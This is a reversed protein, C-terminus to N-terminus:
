ESIWLGHINCLARAKIKEEGIYTPCFEAEPKEGPSLRVGAIVWDGSLIQILQIYHEEEMPHPTSGVTIKVKNGDRKIVPVHKEKGEQEGTKEEMLTMEKGCCSINPQKAEVVSVINGCIECKYFANKEVMKILRRSSTKKLM